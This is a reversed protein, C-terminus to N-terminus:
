RHFMMGIRFANHTFDITPSAGSTPEDIDLTGMVRAYSLEVSLQPSFFWEAGGGVTTGMGSYFNGTFGRDAFMNRWGYMAELVPRVTQSRKGFMMRAGVDWFMLYTAGDATGGDAVLHLMPNIPATARLAGVTGFEPEEAVGTFTGSVPGMFAGIAWSRTRSLEGKDVNLTYAGVEGPHRTEITVAYDGAELFGDVISSRLLGTDASALIARGGALPAVSVQTYFQGESTIEVKQKKAIHLPYVHASSSDALRCEGGSIAGTASGGVSVAPMTDSPACAPRPPLAAYLKAARERYLSYAELAAVHLELKRENERQRDALVGAVMGAVQQTAAEVRQNQAEQEAQQRQLEAIAARAREDARRQEEAKREADTQVRPRSAGATAGTTAATGAGAAGNGATATTTTPRTAQARAISDKRAQELRALRAREVSDARAKQAAAAIGSRIESEATASRMPARTIAVNFDFRALAQQRTMTPSTFDSWKGLTRFQSGSMCSVPGVYPNHLPSVKIDRASWRVIMEADLAPAESPRWTSQLGYMKGEYWYGEFGQASGPEVAYYLQPVDGCSTFRYRLRVQGHLFGNSNASASAFSVVVTKTDDQARASPASLVVALSIALLSRPAGFRGHPLLSM